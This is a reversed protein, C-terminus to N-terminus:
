SIKKPPVLRDVVIAKVTTGETYFARKGSTQVMWRRMEKEDKGM